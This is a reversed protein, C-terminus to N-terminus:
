QRGRQGKGQGKGAGRGSGRGSPGDQTGSRGGRYRQMRGTAQMMRSELQSFYQENQQPTLVARDKLLQDVSKKEIRSQLEAIEDVLSYLEAADPNVERIAALLRTRSALLEGQVSEWDDIFAERQVALREAQDSSLELNEEVAYPSLEQPTDSKWLNGKYTITGLASLNMALLLLNGFGVLSKM